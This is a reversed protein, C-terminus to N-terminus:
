VYMHICVYQYMYVYVYTYICQIYAGDELEHMFLVDTLTYNVFSTAWNMM